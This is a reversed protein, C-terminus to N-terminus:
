WATDRVLRDVRGGAAFFVSDGAVVLDSYGLLTRLPTWRTGSFHLTQGLETIAFVDDPNTGDLAIVTGLAGTDHSIWTGADLELIRGTGGIFVHGGSGWAAGFDDASAPTVTTWSTGDFHRLTSGAGVVYVDSSSAGWIARLDTTAGVDIPTWSVGGDTSHLAAGASGVLYIDADGSGWIDAWCASTPLTVKDLSTTGRRYIYDGCATPTFLMGPAVSPDPKYRPVIAEEYMSFTSAGIVASWISGDFGYVHLGGDVGAWVETESAAWLGLVQVTPLGLEPYPFANLARTITLDDGVALSVATGVAELARSGPLAVGNDLWHRAYGPQFEWYDPESFSGWVAISTIPMGVSGPGIWTSGDYRYFADTSAAYIEDTGAGAITILPDTAGIDEVSWTGDYRHIMPGGDLLRVEGVTGAYGDIFNSAPGGGLQSWTTGDYHLACCSELLAYVDTSSTGSGFVRTFRSGPGGYGPNAPTWAGGNVSGRVMAGDEGVAFSSSQGYHVDNLDSTTGPLTVLRWTPSLATVTLITGHQGVAVNRSGAGDVGRLQARPAAPTTEAFSDGRASWSVGSVGGVFVPGEPRVLVARPTVISHVLSAWRVGDFRLVADPGVAYVRDGATGHVATLDAVSGTATTRWSTGNWVLITGSSGVAFVNNPASGWVGFLDVTAFSTSSWSGGSWHDITSAGVAFVEDASAAWVARIGSGAQTVTAGDWHRLTTGDAMWLDTAGTGSMSRIVGGGSSAVISWAGAAYRLLAGNGGAFVDGAGNWWLAGLPAIGDGLAATPDPLAAWDSGDHVLVTHDGAIAYLEDPPGAIAVVGGPGGISHFGITHCDSTDVTCQQTCGLEGLDFAHDLCSGSPPSPDDPECDEDGNVIGDGCRGVCAIVNYRCIDNCTVPGPEYYDLQTCDTVGDLNDGDCDEFDDDIVGDGCRHMCASTDYQCDDTCGLAGSEYFGIEDCDTRRFDAGDCDELDELIGNGCGLDLCVEDKCLGDATGIDCPTADPLGVCSELQGPLVCGGHVPDCATHAPCIDGNPCLVTASELCGALLVIVVVGRTM